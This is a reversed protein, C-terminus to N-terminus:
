ALLATIPEIANAGTLVVSVGVCVLMTTGIALRTLSRAFIDAGSPRVGRRAREGELLALRFMLDQVM